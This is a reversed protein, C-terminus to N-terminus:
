VSEAGSCIEAIEQTIAAQRAKNYVLQLEDILDGANDTASKMAVMRAGQECAINEIVAQYVQTEIYRVLLLDLLQKAEPEYIYDWVHNKEGEGEGEEPELPLLQQVYPKQTMTNIFENSVLYIADLEGNEYKDLMIKVMGILDAVTPADGLHSGKAVINGGTRKFFMEAKVGLSCLDIEVGKKQWEKISLIASKFVNINLSGCLGRDTSVIIYGVRKIEERQVLYPHRYESTSEAIHNIVKRIERSYPKSLEMREQAKRMKSAAVLQMAGTIKQTKKISNIKNRLAAGVAM